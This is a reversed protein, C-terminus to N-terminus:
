FIVLSAPCDAVVRQYQMRQVTSLGPGYLITVGLEVRHAYFSDAVKIRRQYIHAETLGIGGKVDNGATHQKGGLIASCGPFVHGEVHIVLFAEVEIGQGLHLIATQEHDALLAGHVAGGVITIGPLGKLVCGIVTGPETYGTGTFGTTHNGPTQTAVHETGIVEAIGPLFDGQHGGAVSRELGSQGTAAQCRVAAQDDDTDTANNGDTFVGPAAEVHADAAVPN